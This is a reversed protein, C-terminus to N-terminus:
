SALNLVVNDLVDRARGRWLMVLATLMLRPTIWRGSKDGVGWIAWPHHIGFCVRGFLSM